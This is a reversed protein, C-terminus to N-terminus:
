NRLSVKRAVREDASGYSFYVRSFKLASAANNRGTKSEIKEHFFTPPHRTLFLIVVPTVHQDASIM